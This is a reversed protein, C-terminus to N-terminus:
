CLLDLIYRPLTGAEIRYPAVAKGTDTRRIGGDRGIEVSTLTRVIRTTCVYVVQQEVRGLPRRHSRPFDFRQTVRVWGNGASLSNTDVYARVGDTAVGVELWKEAADPGSSGVCALCAVVWQARRQM